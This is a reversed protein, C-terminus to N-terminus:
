LPLRRRGPLSELSKRDMFEPAWSFIEEKTDHSILTLHIFSNITVYLGLFERIIYGFLYIDGEDAFKRKDIELTVEMGTIVSGRYPIEQPKANVSIISEVHNINYDRQSKEISWNYLSLINRLAEADNLSLYNLSLNSIFRWELGAQLPPYLIISPQDLNRFRVFEPTGPTPNCIDGPKLDRAWRGNTATIGLSLTEKRFDTEESSNVVSIYTNQYNEQKGEEAFTLRTTTNYYGDPQEGIKNGSLDHRFSFFPVYARNEMTNNVTGIVEDISYVEFGDDEAEVKYETAEHDVRIPKAQSKSLNIIPACHLRFNNATFRMDEPLRERFHIRVEIDKTQARPQLRDFGFIDFFFFKKPYSFYEQLIRYGSFSLRSYPLLSEEPYFGVMQIGTQGQIRLAPSGSGSQIVVERVYKNLYLNLMSATLQELDHILIRISRRCLREYESGGNMNFLSDYNVGDEIEFRFKITSSGELSAEALKIPRIHTDYCTRFRCPNMGIAQVPQSDLETGRKIIHPEQIRGPITSFELISLSPIPQLLHPWLFGLLSQTLEPLEDDLKQRIRGILFAFGEFLREVYPDRDGIQDINLFAATSPHSRSFERGAEILYQQEERYYDEIRKKQNNM